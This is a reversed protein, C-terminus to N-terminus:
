SSKRSNKKECTKVSGCEVLCRSVGNGPREFGVGLRQNRGLERRPKGVLCGDAPQRGADTARNEHDVSTVVGDAGVVRAGREGLQGAAGEHAEIARTVAGLSAVGNLDVQQQAIEGLACLRDARPRSRAVAGSPAAAAAAALAGEVDGRPDPEAV